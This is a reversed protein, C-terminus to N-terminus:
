LPKRAAETEAPMARTAVQGFEKCRQFIQRVVEGQGTAIRLDVAVFVKGRQIQRAFYNADNGEVDLDSLMRAIAGGTAGIAASIAAVSSVASSALAGAAAVMGLGPVAVMAIGLLAGAIGGGAVAAAVSLPGHGARGSGEFDVYRGSRWLLSIAEKPIGADVLETVVADADVRREFIATVVQKTRHGEFARAADFAEAFRDREEDSHFLCRLGSSQHLRSVSASIDDKFLTRLLMDITTRRLPQDTGRNIWELMMPPPHDAALHNLAALDEAKIVFASAANVDRQMFSM